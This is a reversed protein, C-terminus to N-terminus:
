YKFFLKKLFELVKQQVIKTVQERFTLTKNIKDNDSM